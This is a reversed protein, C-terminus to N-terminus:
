QRAEGSPNFTLTARELSFYDGATSNSLRLAHWDGRVRFIRRMARGDTTYSFSRSAAPTGDTVSYATPGGRLDADLNWLSASDGTFVEGGDLEVRSVTAVGSPPALQFPGIDLSSSIATSLDDYTATDTIEYLRSNRGGLVMVRDAGVQSLHALCSVPGLGDPYSVPWLGQGRADYFLHTSAGSAISTVYVWLGHRGTDWQLDIYHTTASISRFFQPYRVSSLPEPTAGPTPSIRMLGSAGVFWLGGSSDIAWSRAQLIGSQETLVDISGGDTPDGRVIYMARGTGIVLTDNNFPILSTIPDSIRGRNGANGAVAAGVDTQSYDWDGPDGLRTMYFNQPDDLSGALVLRGRWSAALTPRAPPTGATVSYPIVSRSPGDLVKISSAGNVFYVSGGFVAAEPRGSAGTLVDYGGAAIPMGGRLTGVHISRGSVAILSDSQTGTVVAGSYAKISAYLPRNSGTASIGVGYKNSYNNTTATFLPTGDVLVTFVNGAVTVSIARTTNIFPDGSYSFEGGTVLTEITHAPNIELLQLVRNGSGDQFVALIVSGTSDPAATDVRFFLCIGDTPTAGFQGVFDLRYNTGPTFTPKYIYAYDTAGAHMLGTGNGTFDYM